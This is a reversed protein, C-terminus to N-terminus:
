SENIIDPLENRDDKEIPFYIKLKEGVQRISWCIGDCFKGAQFFKQMGEKVDEWYNSPVVKHIGEDGVIAFKRHAPNLYILVGNRHKTKTMGLQYLVKQAKELADGELHHDLHVRIEGSTKDEAQRIEEIIKEQEEKNFFNKPHKRWFM